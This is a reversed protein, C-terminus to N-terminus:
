YLRHGTCWSPVKQFACANSGMREDDKGAKAREGAEEQWKELVVSMFFSVVANANITNREQQEQVEKCLFLLLLFRM